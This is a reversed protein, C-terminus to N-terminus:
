IDLSKKNWIKITNDWSATYINIDDSCVDSVTNTHGSLTTILELPKKYWVNVTKDMSATYIYKEDGFIDMIKSSHLEISITKKYKNRDYARLIGTPSFGLYLNDEDAYIGSFFVGNLFSGKEKIMAVKKYKKKNWVVVGRVSMTFINDDDVFLTDCHAKFKKIEKFTDKNLIRFTSNHSACYINNQDIYISDIPNEENISAKERFTNKDWIKIKRDASGSYISTDDSCIRAIFHRHGRLTAIEQFTNKDWIKITRDRSGTYLFEKDAYICTIRESHPSFSHKEEM